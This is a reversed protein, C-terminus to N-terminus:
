RLYDFLSLQAIRTYSAQAAQLGSQQLTLQSIASAYDLDQLQSITTSLDLQLDQQNSQASDVATMRAGVLARMSNLHDLSQDLGQLAANMSTTFQARQADSTQPAALATRLKDLMTFVDESSSPTLTF